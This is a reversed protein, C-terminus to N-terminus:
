RGGNASSSAAAVGPLAVIAVATAAIPLARRLM